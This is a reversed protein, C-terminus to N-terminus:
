IHGYCIRNTQNETPHIPRDNPTAPTKRGSKGAVGKKSSAAYPKAREDGRIWRHSTSCGCRPASISFQRLYPAILSRSLIKAATVIIAVSESLMKSSTLGTKIATCATASNQAAANTRDRGAGGHRPRAVIRAGFMAFTQAAVIGYRGYAGRGTGGLDEWGSPSAATARYALLNM